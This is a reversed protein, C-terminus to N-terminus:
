DPMDMEGRLLSGIRHIVADYLQADGFIEKLGDPVNNRVYDDTASQAAAVGVERQIRAVNGLVSRHTNIVIIEAQKPKYGREAQITEQWTRAPPVVLEPFDYNYPIAM